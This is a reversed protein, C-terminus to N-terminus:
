SYYGGDVKKVSSSQVVCFEIMERHSSFKQTYGDLLVVKYKNM